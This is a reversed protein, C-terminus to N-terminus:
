RITKLCSMSHERQATNIELSQLEYGEQFKTDIAGFALLSCALLALPMM